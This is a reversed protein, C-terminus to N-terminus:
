TGSLCRVGRRNNGISLFVTAPLSTQPVGYLPVASSLTSAHRALLSLSLHLNYLNYLQLYLTHGPLVSYTANERVDDDLPRLTCAGGSGGDEWM